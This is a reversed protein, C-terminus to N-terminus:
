WLPSSIMRSFYSNFSLKWIEVSVSLVDHLCHANIDVSVSLVDPSCRMNVDVSVSLVDHLCHM